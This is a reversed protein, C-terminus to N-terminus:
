KGDVDEDDVNPAAARERRERQEVLELREVEQRLWSLQQETTWPDLEVQTGDDCPPMTNHTALVERPDVEGRFVRELTRLRCEVLALMSSAAQGGHFGPETEEGQWDVLVRAADVVQRLVIAEHELCVVVLTM